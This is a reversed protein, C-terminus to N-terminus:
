SQTCLPSMALRTLLRTCRRYYAPKSCDRTNHYLRLFHTTCESSYKVPGATFHTLFKEKLSIDRPVVEVTRSSDEKPVYVSRERSSFRYDQSVSLLGSTVRRSAPKDRQSDGIVRLILHLLTRREALLEADRGDACHGSTMLLLLVSLLVHWKREAQM